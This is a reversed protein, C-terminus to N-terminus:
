GDQEMYEVTSANMNIAKLTDEFKIHVTDGAGAPMHILKGSLISGDTFHIVVRKGLVFKETM